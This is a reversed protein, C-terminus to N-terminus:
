ASRKRHSKPVTGGLAKIERAIEQKRAILTNMDADGPSLDILGQMEESELQLERIRLGNLSDAITRELDVIEGKEALFLQAAVVADESLGDFVVPLGHEVVATYLERYMPTLFDAPGVREAIREMADPYHLLAKILMREASDGRPLQRRELTRREATRLEAPRAAADDRTTRAARQSERESGLKLERELVERSVGAVSSTKDLYMDRTYPDVTARITPLLRDLARRKRRLDAFYGARELLQVKRDFIDLAGKLAATMAEAGHTDVFSDPDEGDPLTVVQVAFRHRLLEDGARFTARQGAEDSDYLLFANKTYRALLEAQGETLATGLPAVVSEIGAAMLRVADFYGEVVLVRDDKRIANKSWNLAYLLRSKNFLPSEASNLYKPEGPGLLRGGFGVYRGSANLIPFILRNRFRPRLEEEGERQVLLGALVLVDDDFGLANLATRLADRDPPAFGLEFRDAADRTIRRLTLYDRAALGDDESWLSARFFHAAAANAEYLPANPDPADRRTEIERVEIGSKDAVLRVASPFDLGLRKMVFDVADGSEKCVFCHYIRKQPVVSFNRHTGQHFPCPGRLTNGVRKLSVHEGIVAVIDAEDRVRQITEDAISM